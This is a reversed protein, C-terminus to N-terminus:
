CTADYKTTGYSMVSAKWGGELAQWKITLQGFSGATMTVDGFQNISIYTLSNFNSAKPGSIVGSSNTGTDSNITHKLYPNWSGYTNKLKIQQMAGTSGRLELTNGLSNFTWYENAGADDYGMPCYIKSEGNEWTSGLFALTDEAGSWCCTVKVQPDNNGSCNVRELPDSSSSSSDSYGESSSSSSEGESSSSSSEGLSSSSSSDGLSSSSSSDPYSSSSSSDISSSSSTGMSSSSSDLLCAECDPYVAQIDKPETDVPLNTKGIHQYCVGDVMIVDGQFERLVKQAM